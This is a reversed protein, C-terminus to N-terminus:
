EESENNIRKLRDVTIGLHRDWNAIHRRMENKDIEGQLYLGVAKDLDNLIKQGDGWPGQIIV